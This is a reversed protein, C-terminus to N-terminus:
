PATATNLAKSGERTEEPNYKKWLSRTPIVKSPVPLHLTTAIPRHDSGFPIGEDIKCRSVQPELSDSFFTLDITSASESTETRRWTIMGKPALLELGAQSTIQILDDAMKSLKTETELSWWPHHLNFNGLLIHKGLRQLFPPQLTIPSDFDYIHLPTPTKYFNTITVDGDPLHLSVLAIREGILEADWSYDPLRKNIFFCMRAHRNTRYTPRFHSGSDCITAHFRPNQHSKFPSQTTNALTEAQHSCPLPIPDIIRM